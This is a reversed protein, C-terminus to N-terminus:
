LFKEQGIIDLLSNISNMENLDDANLTVGFNDLVFGILVMALVSDWEDLEKLNTELNIECELELEDKLNGLFQKKDM